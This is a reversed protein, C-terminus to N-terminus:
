LLELLSEPYLKVISWALPGLLGSSLSGGVVANKDYPLSSVAKGGWSVLRCNEPVHNRTAQNLNVLTEDSTWRGSGSSLILEDLDQWIYALSCLMSARNRILRNSVTKESRFGCLIGVHCKHYFYHGLSLYKEGWTSGSKRTLAQCENM